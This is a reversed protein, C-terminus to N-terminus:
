MLSGGPEFASVSLSLNLESLDVSQQQNGDTESWQRWFTANLYCKNM